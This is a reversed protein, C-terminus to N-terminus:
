VDENSLEAREKQLEYERMNEAQRITNLRYRVNVQRRHRQLHEDYLVLGITIVSFICSGIFVQRGRQKPLSKSM